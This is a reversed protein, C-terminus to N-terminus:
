TLNNVSDTLLQPGIMSTDGQAIYRETALEKAKAEVMIDVLHGYTNIPGVIYDSHANERIKQFEDHMSKFTPWEDLKDYDLGNRDFIEQIMKQQEKRRSESYHTVPVIDDPWTSIATELAEQERLDGPNLSHHYFDFTIPIGIQEHIYMLDQVTFMSKKDDNEVVVRQKTNDDLKEWGRLWDEMAKQKNGYAGGIHINIKNHFSPTLGMMDFIMSHNNLERVTREAVEPNPSGLVCFQGPHFTVRQDYEKVKDGIEGLIGAITNYDKLETFDYYDLWPILESGIRYFKYDNEENWDIIKSLDIVNKVACDSVVDWGKKKWTAMRVTRGTVINKQDALTMNVCAYGLRSKRM